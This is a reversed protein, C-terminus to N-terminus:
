VVMVDLGSLKVFPGAIYWARRRVIATQLKIAKVTKVAQGHM